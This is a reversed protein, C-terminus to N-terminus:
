NLALIIKQSTQFSLNYYKRTHKLFHKIFNKRKPLIFKVFSVNFVFIVHAEM